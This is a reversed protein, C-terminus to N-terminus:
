GMRESVRALYEKVLGDFEGQLQELEAQKAKVFSEDKISPLNILVNLRAGHFCANLNMTGVGADSISSKNGHEVVPRALRLGELALHMTRLPAEAAGKLAESVAEARAQKDAETMKPLKFAAMVAKFAAADEDVLDIFRGRMLVLKDRVGALEEDFEEYGKKGVTLKAVMTMLAVGIAGNLAAASGGGPTPKSSALENLFEPFGGGGGGSSELKNELIQDRKFNNLQLYFRSCANLAGQPVLGVIESETVNVGWREAERKVTEFVRYLPTKTYDTMNISVQVCNREKIEFGLAKAFRYGGSRSRIAKAIRQAVKLNDTDLYVNYAILPARVGVVTAGATPHVEPRGFDPARDPDSKIATRLGEFEGKRIVALDQRDPRTAALEYLYVPISLEDAVRKGLRRALEICEEQTAGSIPVFPVVDTAGMRPHEGQHKTLDILESARKTGRFAAELVAEPEGVFSIVARNHDGDMEQDLMSIGTVSKIAGVIDDIVEPRRGESFNPVCEILRRM